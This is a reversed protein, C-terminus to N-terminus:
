PPWPTSVAQAQPPVPLLIEVRTGRDRAVVSLRASLAAARERMSRLGNGEDGSTGLGNDSLSVEIGAAVGRAALTVATAQSHQMVNSLAELLLFQLHRMADHTGTPWLPLPGVDWHLEVGSAEIRAQLRYRLSALLANVDGVPLNIADISLKLQSMSERLSELVRSTSIRGGELQRVASTLLSGVGDHMDRLIRAREAAVALTRDSRALRDLSEHLQAEHAHVLATLDGNLADVARHARSYEGAIMWGLASVLVPAVYPLAHIHGFPLLGAAVMMDHLGALWTAMVVLVLLLDDRKPDTVLSRLMVVLVWGGTGLVPAMLLAHLPNVGQGHAPAVAVVLAAILSFALAAAELRPIRRGAFRLCFLNILVVSWMRTVVILWQWAADPMPPDQMTMDVNSFGWLITGVAFYGYDTLERKRLWVFLIFLGLAVVFANAASVLRNQWFVQEAHRQAMADVSGILMPALGARHEAAARVRVHVVNDGAAWARDPIPFLLPTNWHRTLGADMRGSRGTLVGNVWIDANMSVGPLMLAWPGDPSGAFRVNFRYWVTGASAPRTQAWADPLSAAAWSADGGPPTRSASVLADVRTVQVPSLGGGLVLVPASAPEIATSGAPRATAGTAVCM